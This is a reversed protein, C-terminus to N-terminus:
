IRLWRLANSIFDPYNESLKSLTQEKSSSGLIEPLPKAMFDCALDFLSPYPAHFRTVPFPVKVFDEYLYNFFSM